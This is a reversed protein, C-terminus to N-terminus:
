KAEKATKISATENTETVTPQKDIKDGDSKKRFIVKYRVFFECAIIFFYVIGIILNAISDNTFAFDMRVQEMGKTIFAVLFCTGVAFLPNCNALWTTMIATFGMNNATDKGITHSIAGTLLLGIIGCIAGSMILTRIIVKKVNIGIYKATPQSDGVVATEYGHKSFKVYLFVFGFILACVLITLLHANGIEPLNGYEIPKLVGSGSTVWKAIFFTVLGQAIYNMMLTFLSENTNFYAKCIAPIVAWIAGAVISSVVMCLIIVGDPAKGGMYHMCAITALGGILIQGNAGLNWFKMKFAPLLAMSVGILLFATRLFVWFKRQSGFTGTLLSGFFSFPNGDDGAITCIIGCLFLGGIIAAAYIGIKTKIKLNDRKVVHFLPERALKNETKM